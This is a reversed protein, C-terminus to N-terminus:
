VKMISCHNCEGSGQHPVGVMHIHDKFNAEVVKSWM